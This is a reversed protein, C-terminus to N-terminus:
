SLLHGYFDFKYFLKLLSICLNFKVKQKQIFFFLRHTRFIGNEICIEIILLIKADHQAIHKHKSQNKFADKWENKQFEQVRDSRDSTDEFRNDAVHVLESEPDIAM